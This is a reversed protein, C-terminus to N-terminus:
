AMEMTAPAWAAPDFPVQVVAGLLAQDADAHLEAQRLQVHGVARGRGRDPRSLLLGLRQHDLQTVQHMADAWTRQGFEAQRRREILQGRRIRHRRGHLCM